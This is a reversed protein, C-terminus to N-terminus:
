PLQRSPARPGVPITRRAPGAVKGVETIRGDRIAVDGSRAANGTGDILKGDRIVLDHM